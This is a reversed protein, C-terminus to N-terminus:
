AASGSLVILLFKASGLLIAGGAAGLPFLGLFVFEDISDQDFAHNRDSVKRVLMYSIPVIIAGATAARGKIKHTVEIRDIQRWAIPSQPLRPRLKEGEVWTAVGRAGSTEFSVGAAAFGPRDIEFRDSGMRLTVARGRTRTRLSDLEGSRPEPAPLTSPAIRALSDPLVPEAAAASAPSLCSLAM